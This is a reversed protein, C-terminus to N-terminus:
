ATPLTGIVDLYARRVFTADPCLPAPANGIEQLLAFVVRDIESEKSPNAATDIADSAYTVAAGALVALALLARLHFVNSSTKM